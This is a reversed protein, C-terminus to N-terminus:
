VGFKIFTPFDVSVVYENFKIADIEILVSHNWAVQGQLLTQAHKENNALGLGIIKGDERVIKFPKRTEILTPRALVALVHVLSVEGPDLPEDSVSMMIRQIIDSQIKAFKLVKELTTRKFTGHFIENTGLHM